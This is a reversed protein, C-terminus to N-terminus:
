VMPPLRRLLLHRELGGGLEGRSETLQLAEFLMRVVARVGEAQLHAQNIEAWLEEM